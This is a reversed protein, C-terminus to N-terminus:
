ALSAYAFVICPKTNSEDNAFPMDDMQTGENADKLYFFILSVLFSFARIEKWMCASIM